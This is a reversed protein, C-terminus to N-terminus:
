MLGSSVLFDEVEKVSPKYRMHASRDAFTDARALWQGLYGIVELRGYHRSHAESVLRSKRCVASGSALHRCKGLGCRVTVKHYSKHPDDADRPHWIEEELKVGCISSPMDSTLKKFAPEVVEAPSESDSGRSEDELSEDEGSAGESAGGATGSELAAAAVIPGGGSISSAAGAGGTVEGEDADALAEAQEVALAAPVDELQLHGAVPAVPKDMIGKGDLIARYHKVLRDPEVNQPQASLLLCQYYLEHQRPHIALCGKGFLEQHVILCRFYSRRVVAGALLFLKPGGPVHTGVHDSTWKWGMDKLRRLLVYIPIGPAHPDGFEDQPDLSVRLTYFGQVAGAGIESWVRLKKAVALWPAVAFGDIVEPLRM